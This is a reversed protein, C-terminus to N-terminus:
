GEFGLKELTTIYAHRITQQQTRGATRSTPCWAVLMRRSSRSEEMASVKSLWRCGRMEMMSEITPSNGANRRTEENTIRREAIGWM